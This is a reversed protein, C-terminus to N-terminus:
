KTFAIICLITNIPKLKEYKSLLLTIQVTVYAGNNIGLKLSNFAMLHYAVNCAETGLTNLQKTHINSLLLKRQEYSITIPLLEILDINIHMRLM